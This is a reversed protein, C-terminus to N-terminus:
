VRFCEPLRLSFMDCSMRVELKTASKSKLHVQSFEQPNVFFVEENQGGGVTKSCALLTRELICKKWLVDVAANGAGFSSVM